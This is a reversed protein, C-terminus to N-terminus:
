PLAMLMTNFQRKAMFSLAFHVKASFQVWNHLSVCDRYLFEKVKDGIHDRQNPRPGMPAFVFPCCLLCQSGRKTPTDDIKIVKVLSEFRIVSIVQQDSLSEIAQVVSQETGHM